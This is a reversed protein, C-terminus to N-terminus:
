VEVFSYVPVEITRQPPNKGQLLLDIDHAVDPKVVKEGCQNCVGTPVNELVVLKGEWRVERSILQEEVVGGCFYCDSYTRKM